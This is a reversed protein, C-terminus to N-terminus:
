RVGAPVDLATSRNPSHIQVGAHEAQASAWQGDRTQAADDGHSTCRRRAADVSRLENIFTRSFGDMGFSRHGAARGRARHRHSEAGALTTRSRSTSASSAASTADTSPGGRSDCVRALYARLRPADASTCCFSRVARPIAAMGPRKHRCTHHLPHMFGDGGQMGPGAPQASARRRRDVNLSRRCRCGSGFTRAPVGEEHDRDVCTSKPRSPVRSSGSLWGPWSCSRGDFVGPTRKPGHIVRRSTQPRATTREAADEGQRALRRFGPPSAPQRNRARVAPWSPPWEM